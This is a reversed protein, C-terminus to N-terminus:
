VIELVRDGYGLQKKHKDFLACLAECFQKHAADVEEPLPSGGKEKMEFTMPKGFAVTTKVPLPCFSGWYGIALPFCVGFRKQLWERPQFLFGNWTFHYDSAGFVYCPVVPVNKKMALRLFGKRHMLFVIERGRTTRLQEAEGGPRVLVTRGRDLAAEAVSRRADICSTWLAWERLIPVRFLVSATLSRINQYINPFVTHWLGDMSVHYDAWVGHPFEAFVFQANPQREADTLEQPLPMIEMRLLKRMARFVFFNKSFNIRHFGDRIEHRGITLTYTYYPLAVFVGISRPFLILGLPLGFTLITIVFYPVSFSLYGMLRDYPPLAEPHTKNM